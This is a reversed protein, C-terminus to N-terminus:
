PLPVVGGRWQAHVDIAIGFAQPDEIIASEDRADILERVLSYRRYGEAQAEAFTKRGAFTAELFEYDAVASRASKWGIVCHGSMLLLIPDLGVASLLSAFLVSADICNAAAEAISQRPLRVRQVFHGKQVHYVTATDDYGIGLEAVAKYLEQVQARVEDPVNSGSPVEYGVFNRGFASRAKNVITRVAADKDMVWAAILWSYDHIKDEIPDRRAFLFYDTPLVQLDRAADSGIVVDVWQGAANMREASYNL